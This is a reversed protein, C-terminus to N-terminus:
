TAVRSMTVTFDYTTRIATGEVAMENITSSLFVTNGRWTAGAITAGPMPWRRLREVVRVARANHNTDGGPEDRQSWIDVQFAQEGSTADANFVEDNVATVPQLTIYPMSPAEGGLGWAFVADSGILPSESDRLGGTGTDALLRTRVQECVHPWIM